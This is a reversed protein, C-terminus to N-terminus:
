THALFRDALKKEVFGFNDVLYTTKRIVNNHFEGNIERDFECLILLATVKDFFSVYPRFKVLFHM